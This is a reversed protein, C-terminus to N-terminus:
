DIKINGWEYVSTSVNSAKSMIENKAGQNVFFYFVRIHIIFETITM